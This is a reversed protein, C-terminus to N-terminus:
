QIKISHFIGGEKNGYKRGHNTISKLSQKAAFITCVLIYFCVQVRNLNLINSHYIEM